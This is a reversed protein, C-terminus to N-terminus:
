AAQEEEESLAAGLESIANSIHDTTPTNGERERLTAGAYIAASMATKLAAVEQPTM